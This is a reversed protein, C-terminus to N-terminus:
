PPLNLLACHFHNFTRLWSRRRLGHDVSSGVKRASRKEKQLDQQSHAQGRNQSSPSPSKTRLPIFSYTAHQQVPHLAPPGLVKCDVMSDNHEGGTAVLM